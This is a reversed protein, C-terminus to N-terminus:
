CVEWRGTHMGQRREEQQPHSPRQQRLGVGELVSGWSERTLIYEREGPDDGGVAFPSYHNQDQFLDRGAPTAGRNLM